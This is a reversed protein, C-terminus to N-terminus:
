PLRAERVDDGDLMRGIQQESVSIMPRWAPDPETASIIALMADAQQQTIEQRILFLQIWLGCAGRDNAEIAKRVDSFAVYDTVTKITAQPLSSMIQEFTFEKLRPPQPDPNPVSPANAAAAIASDTLSWGGQLTPVFARIWSIASPTPHM